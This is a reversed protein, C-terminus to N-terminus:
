ATSSPWGPSAAPASSTPGAPTRWTSRSRAPAAVHASGQLVTVEPLRRSRRRAIAVLDGHPEVGTVSARRGAFVPLHFGTGCGIDLVDRGAWPALGLMLGTIAGARDVARNEIEYVQPPHWINPSPIAGDPLDPSVCAARLDRVVGNPTQFKAAVIGPTGNPAVWEVKVDELPQTSPSASGSRSGPPTAPSRWASWRSRAPPAPARTTAPTSRGSSSSRCSRTPRCARSASSSGGCSSETPATGTATSPRAAWGTEIPAIDDVSVVWGMWGGGLVSRARVAQGFPAKDSAPHDLVEVVELYTGETLPLIANRTGFRPHIGGGFFEEGLLTRCSARDHGRARGAGAAFVIHDLRM